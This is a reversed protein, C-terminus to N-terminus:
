DETSPDSYTGFQPQGDEVMEKLNFVPIIKGLYKEKYVDAHYVPEEDEDRKKMWIDDISKGHGGHQVWGNLSITRYGLNAYAKEAKAWRKVMREIGIPEGLYTYSLIDGIETAINRYKEIIKIDSKKGFLWKFM